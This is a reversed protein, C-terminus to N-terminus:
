EKIEPIMENVCALANLTRPFGIYPLCITLAALLTDKENGVAVNGGVHAKLQSECGGLTALIVFTLLERTPIDLVTRTYFDGFCYASLYDQINKQNDPAAARMTDISNGFISKQTAIGSTLRRDEAVAQSPLPLTVDLETLVQNVVEVTAEAKGLGIYPSCHYIAEKIEVASVGCSLAARTHWRVESMTQNTAAVVLIILERLRPSLKEEDYIEGYILREKIASFEPDTEKLPARTDGYLQNLYKEAIKIRDM